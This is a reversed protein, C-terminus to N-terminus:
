KNTHQVLDEILSAISEAAHTKFCNGLNEVLMRQRHKDKALELIAPVLKDPVENDKILIAANKTVLPLVNKMQHDATVNSSPIFIAPKQASAIEAISIAGARSVVIDAAAFALDMREIYPLVKFNKDFALFDTQQITTFYANGTSLIVQITHKEFIHAAKIISESIAQAGLSGGLILVTIPGPELGFYELSTLYNDTKNTLFARVPNGTLVIKNNPFYADMGEYAVCIKNAYKALLRNAVGPYANQEQLVIPIHMRAAMYIAPFSAYGGTGIVVNPKFDKIIRRVKWLSILAWIPLALNKWIYKLKRKIGRIPLGVIPYGAAPVQNMEMKGGAGVFLIQNETNKRKLVDAIAIGPYVHGGTGGGSIIVKM